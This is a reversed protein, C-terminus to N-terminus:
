RTTTGTIRRGRRRIGDLVVRGIDLTVGNSPEYSLNEIGLGEGFSLGFGDLITLGDRVVRARLRVVARARLM